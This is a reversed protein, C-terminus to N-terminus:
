RGGGHLREALQELAPLAAEISARESASLQEMAEDVAATRQDRIREALARGADTVEVWASRRDAPDASRAILGADTLSAVTRSLLTPNLGEREAVEALRIPGHRETSLLVIVRTPTLGAALGAETPRLARALRGSVIRVRQAAGTDLGTAM